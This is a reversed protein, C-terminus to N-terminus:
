ISHLKGLTLIRICLQLDVDQPHIEEEVDDPGEDDQDDEVVFNVGPKWKAVEFSWLELFSPLKSKFSM